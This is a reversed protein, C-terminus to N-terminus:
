KAAGPIPTGAIASPLALGTEYFPADPLVNRLDDFSASEGYQLDQVAVLQGARDYEFVYRLKGPAEWHYKTITAPVGGGDIEITMLPQGAADSLEITPLSPTGDGATGRSATWRFGRVDGRRQHVMRTVGPYNAWHDAEVDADSADLYDVRALQGQDYLEIREVSGADRRWARAHRPLREAEERPLENAAVADWTRYYVPDSV